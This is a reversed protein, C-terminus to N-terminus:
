HRHFCLSWHLCFRHHDFGRHRHRSCCYDIFCRWCHGSPHGSNVLAVTTITETLGRLSPSARSRLKGQVAHSTVSIGLMHYRGMHLRQLDVFIARLSVVLGVGPGVRRGFGVVWPFCLLWIHQSPALCRPIAGLCMPRMWFCATKWAEICAHLGVHVCEACTM